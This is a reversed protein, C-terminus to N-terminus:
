ATRCFCSGPIKVESRAWAANFKEQTEKAEKEQGRLRLCEALGHLSWGNGPHRKLDERYVAEAEEARGAQLLLAGLSHRAPQVWDWPENYKLADDLRVAERLREFAPETQGRRFLLEGGIMARAVELVTAAPNNGMKASAPVAGRASEFAREEAAAEELRGTASFALTRSYHWFATTLPLTAKPKPERLLDEWLGFRISVHYPTALFGDLFDPLSEVVELPLGRVLGRAAEQALARRGEFMAAWALFHWNHARYLAHFGGAGTYRLHKEDARVARENSSVADQYRGVRQYIHSPM